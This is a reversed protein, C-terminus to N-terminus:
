GVDAMVKLKPYDIKGSPTSPLEDMPHYVRPLMFKSLNQRAYTKLEILTASKRLIVFAVIKRGLTRDTVDVAAIREIMQSRMLSKEVDDLSVRVDMTKILRDRRGTLILFGEADLTGIDGTMAGRYRQGGIEFHRFTRASREPDNIYCMAVGAGLHVIEGEHGAPLPQGADDVAILRVGEIARGVSTERGARETPLLCSSRYTESLGYNAFISVGQFLKLIETVLEPALHSGTSTAKKISTRDIRAIDSIGYAMGAYVAPTGAVVSPRHHVIADCMAQVGEREPLVLTQGLCLCSLLQGWGYDHSFPVPCLIREADYGNLRGVRQAGSLLSAASQMVGKPEGTSGSTFVVSAVEDPQVPDANKFVQPSDSHDFAQDTMVYKASTLQKARDLHGAPAHPSVFVPYAGIKWAAITAAAIAPSNPASLVVGTQRAVGNERLLFGIQESMKDLDAFTWFDQGQLLALSQGSGVVQRLFAGLPTDISSM